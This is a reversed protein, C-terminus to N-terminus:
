VIKGWRNRPLWERILTLEDKEIPFLSHGIEAIGLIQGLYFANSYCNPKRGVVKYKIYNNEPHKIRCYAMKWGSSDIRYLIPERNKTRAIKIKKSM